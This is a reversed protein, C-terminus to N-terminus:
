ASRLVAWCANQSLWFPRCCPSGALSACASSVMASSVCGGRRKMAPASAISVASCCIAVRWCCISAYRSNDDDSAISSTADPLEHPLRRRQEPALSKRSV